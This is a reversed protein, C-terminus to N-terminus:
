TMYNKMKVELGVKQTPVNLKATRMRCMVKPRNEQM